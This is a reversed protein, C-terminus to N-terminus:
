PTHDSHCDTKRNDQNLCGILNLITKRNHQCEHYSYSLYLSTTSVNLATNFMKFQVGIGIEVCSFIQHGNEMHCIALKDLTM